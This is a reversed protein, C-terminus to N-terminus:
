RQLAAINIGFCRGEFVEEGAIFRRRGIEIYGGIRQLLEVDIPVVGAVFVVEHVIDGSSLFLLPRISRGFSWPPLVHVLQLLHGIPLSGLDQNLQVIQVIHAREGQM